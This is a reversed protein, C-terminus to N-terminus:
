QIETLISKIIIPKPLDEWKDIQNSMVPKGGSERNVSITIHPTINKSIIGAQTFKNVKVALVKDDLIGTSTIELEYEYGLMGRLESDIGGMNITCHHAITEWEQNIDIGCKKLYTLLSNRSDETLVFASYRAPM